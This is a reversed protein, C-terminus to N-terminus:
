CRWCYGVDQNVCAGTHVNLSIWVVDCDLSNRIPASFQLKSKVLFCRSSSITYSTVQEYTCILLFIRQHRIQSLLCVCIASLIIGNFIMLGFPPLIWKDTLVKRLTRGVICYVLILPQALLQKSFLTKCSTTEQLRDSQQKLNRINFSGGASLYTSLLPVKSYHCGKCSCYNKASSARVPPSLHLCPKTIISLLSLPHCAECPTSCTHCADCSTRSKWHECWLKAFLLLVYRRWKM